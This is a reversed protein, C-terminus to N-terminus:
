PEGAVLGNAVDPTSGGLPQSSVEKLFVPWSRYGEPLPLDGDKPVTVGQLAACAAMAIISGTLVVAPVAHRM